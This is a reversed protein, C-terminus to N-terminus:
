DNGEEKKVRVRYDCLLCGLEIFDDDRSKTDIEKRRKRSVIEMVKSIFVRFYMGGGFVEIKVKVFYHSGM